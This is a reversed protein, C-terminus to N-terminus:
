SQLTSSCVRIMSELVLIISSGLAQQQRVTNADIVFTSFNDHLELCTEAMRSGTSQFQVSSVTSVNMDEQQGGRMVVFM